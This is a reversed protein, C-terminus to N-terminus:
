LGSVSVEFAYSGSVTPEISYERYGNALKFKAKLPETGTQIETAKRPTDFYVAAFAQIADFLTDSNTGLQYIPTFNM